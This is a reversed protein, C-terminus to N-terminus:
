VVESEIIADIIDAKKAGSQVSIGESEAIETLQAKTM